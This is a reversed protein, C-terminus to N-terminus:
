DLGKPAGRWDRQTDIFPWVQNPPEEPEIHDVWTGDFYVWTTEGDFHTDGLRGPHMPKM